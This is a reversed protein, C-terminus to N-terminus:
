SNTAEMDGLDRITKVVQPTVREIKNGTMPIQIDTCKPVSRALSDEAVRMAPSVRRLEQRRSRSYEPQQAACRHSLVRSGLMPQSRNRLSPRRPHGARSPSEQYCWWRAGNSRPAGQLAPTRKPTSLNPNSGWTPVFGSGKGPSRRQRRTQANSGQRKRRQNWRNRILQHEPRYRDPEM